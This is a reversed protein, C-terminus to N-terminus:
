FLVLLSRKAGCEPCRILNVELLTSLFNYVEQKHCKMELAGLCFLSLGGDRM